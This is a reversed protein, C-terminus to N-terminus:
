PVIGSFLDTEPITSKGRVLVFTEQGYFESAVSDPLSLMVGRNGFQTMHCRMAARKNIVQATVDIRTTIQEEPTFMNAPRPRNEFEETPIGAAKMREIMREFRGEPVAAYYLKSPRWPAYGNVAFKTADGAAEFAAVTARHVMIHDPHGYGGNENYTIVVQPKVERIIAVIRGVVEDLNANQFARPDSNEPTGAMGSDHYGLFRVDHIGLTQAACRLEGRRIEGLKSKADEPDLSPDHIEGLQGDTACILVTNVGAQSYRALVGGTGITEDDPHAHVTLLTLQNTLFIGGRAGTSGIEEDELKLSFALTLTDIREFLHAV